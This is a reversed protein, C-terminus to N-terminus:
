RGFEMTGDPQLRLRYRAPDAPRSETDNSYRSAVWIWEVGVIAAVDASRSGAPRPGYLVATLAEDVVGGIRCPGTERRCAIDGGPSFEAEASRDPPVGRLAATLARAADAGLFVETLGISPGFRDFCVGRQSNCVVGHDPSSLGAPLEISATVCAVGLIGFVAAAALTRVRDGIM